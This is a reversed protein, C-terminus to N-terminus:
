VLLASSSSGTRYRKCSLVWFAREQLMSSGSHCGTSASSGGTVGAVVFTHRLAV